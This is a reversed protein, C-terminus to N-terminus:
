SVQQEVERWEATSILTEGEPLVIVHERVGAEEAAALLRPVPEEMPEHSLKFTGYHMPIMVRAGLDLFAQLADEPSTHVNRFSPPDYAGIPLLVIEPKLTAGIARFGDFYATDGSHYVSHAGSRVVYGGFGRHFDSLMRAGWHSAPTHTIEIGDERLTDWWGMEIVQEFGLDDIVESV